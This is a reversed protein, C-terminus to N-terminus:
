MPYFSARAPLMAGAARMRMAGGKGKGESEGKYVRRAAPAVADGKGKGESESEGKYVRRAAPADADGEKAGV